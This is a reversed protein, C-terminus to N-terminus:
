GLVVLGVLFSGSNMVLSMGLARRGDLPLLIRLVVAEVLVVVAEGVAVFTWYDGGHERWVWWLVPHTLASCLFGAGAVQPWPLQRLFHLCLSLEVAVTIIFAGAWRFWFVDDPSM